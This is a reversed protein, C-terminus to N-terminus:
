GGDRDLREGRTYQGHFALMDIGMAALTVGGVSTVVLFVLTNGSGAFGLPLAMGLLINGLGSWRYWAVHATLRTDTAAVLDVVGAIGLLAIQGAIVPDAPPTGVFLVVGGVVLLLFTGVVASLKRSVEERM